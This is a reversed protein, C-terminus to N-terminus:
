RIPNIGETMLGSNIILNFDQATVSDDFDVDAAFMVEENEAGCELIRNCLVADQGDCKADGDIDGFIVIVYEKCIEGSFNLVRLVSGTGKGNATPIFEYSGDFVTVYDDISSYNEGLDYIFGKEEDIYTSSGLKASIVPQVDAYGLLSLANVVPFTYTANPVISSNPPCQGESSTLLAERFEAPTADPYVSLFLAALGSIIPAAQSTGSMGTVGTTSSESIPLGLIAFGPAAIDYYNHTSDYNSFNCLQGDPGLAMVGIVCSYSGPVVKQETANKASNGASSVLIVGANYAKRCADELLPAYGVASLSMSIVDAGNSVAYNIGAIVADVSILDETRSVKIPMIKTEPAVGILSTNRGPAAAIIGIVNGGHPSEPQVDYSDTDSNYGRNGNADEWINDRIEWNDVNFGSDLVAVVTGEGLTSYKEWADPVQVVDNMWWNTYNMFLSTPSTIEVPMNFTDSKLIYNPQAMNVASIGNLKECCLEVNETRGLLVSTKTYTGDSNNKVRTDYLGQMKLEKIIETIGCLSLEASVYGPRCFLNKNKVKQTYVFVVENEAYEGGYISESDPATFIHVDDEAFSSFPLATFILVACLFASIFKKVKM